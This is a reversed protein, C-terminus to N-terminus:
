GGFQVGGLEFALRKRGATQGDLMNKLRLIDREIVRLEAWSWAPSNAGSAYRALREYDSLRFTAEALSIVNGEIIAAKAWDMVDGLSMSAPERWAAAIDAAPYLALALERM